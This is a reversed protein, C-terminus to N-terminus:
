TIFVERKYYKKREEIRLSRVPAPHEGALPHRLKLICPVLLWDKKNNGQFGKLGPENV